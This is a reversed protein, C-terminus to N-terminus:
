TKGVLASAAQMGGGITGAVGNGAPGVRVAGVGGTTIYAEVVPVDSANALQLSPAAKGSTATFSGNDGYLDLSGTDSASLQVRPKSTATEHLALM